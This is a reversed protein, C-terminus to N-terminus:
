RTSAAAAASAALSQSETESLLRAERAKRTYAEQTKGNVALWERAWGMEGVTAERDVGQLISKLGSRSVAAEDGTPSVQPPAAEMLAYQLGHLADRRDPDWGLNRGIAVGILAMPM